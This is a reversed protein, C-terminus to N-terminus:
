PPKRASHILPDVDIGRIWDMFLAPAVVHGRFLHLAVGLMMWHGGKVSM